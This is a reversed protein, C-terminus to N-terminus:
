RARAAGGARQGPLQGPPKLLYPRGGIVAGSTLRLLEGTLEELKMGRSAKVLITSDPGVLQELVSKAAKKDPM